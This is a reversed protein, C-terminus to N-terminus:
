KTLEIKAFTNYQAFSIGGNIGSLYDAEVLGYKNEISSRSNTPRVLIDYTTRWYQRLNQNAAIVTSQSASIGAIAFFSTIALGIFLVIFHSSYKRASTKISM